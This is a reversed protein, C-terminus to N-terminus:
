LTQILKSNLEPLMELHGTAVALRIKLILHQAQENGSNHKVAQLMEKKQAFTRPNYLFHL